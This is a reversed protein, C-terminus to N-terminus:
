IQRQCFCFTDPKQLLIYHIILDTSIQIFVMDNCFWIIRDVIIYRFDRCVCDHQHVAAHNIVTDYVTKIFCDFNHIFRVRGLKHFCYFILRLHIVGSSCMYFVTNCKRLEHVPELCIDALDRHCLDRSRVIKFRSSSLLLIKNLQTKIRDTSITCISRHHM